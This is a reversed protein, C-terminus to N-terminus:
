YTKIVKHTESCIAAFLRGKCIVSAFLCIESKFLRTDSKDDWCETFWNPWNKDFIFAISQCPLSIASSCLIKQLKINLFYNLYNLDGFVM